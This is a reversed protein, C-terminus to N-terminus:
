TQTREAAVAKLSHTVDALRVPDIRTGRAILQRGAMFEGPANVAEVARVVDGCLHFLAFSGKDPDGRLVRGDCELPLGAIQLKLDFQDSWFWPVEPSPPPTGCIAAAAQKAQELASPVSELRMSRGYLTLPRYTMDGIAFINPDSTRASEDVIVGDACSLGAERALADNPCAGIGVLVTDAPVVMDDALRVGAATIEGLSTGFIFTVGEREHRAQYFSALEPAAVRALLRAERELVVVAAGLARASAAVELGVYGGGVVVLRHGPGLRNKLWTADDSNRLVGVSELEAGPLALQRASAGQALVLKDYELTTGDDCVVRSNARDIASVGAELRLNVGAELYWELPRLLLSDADAEGKLWAKSLPPRQYPAIPEEGILTIPGDHGFQRLFAAVSGGAHGAGVIVIREASM